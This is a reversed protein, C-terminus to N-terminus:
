YKITAWTKEGIRNAYMSSIKEAIFDLTFDRFFPNNHIIEIITLLCLITAEAHQSPCNEDNDVCGSFSFIIQRLIKFLGYELGVSSFPGPVSFDLFNIKEARYTVYQEHTRIVVKDLKYDVKKIISATFTINKRIETKKDTNYYSYIVSNEILMILVFCFDRWLRDLLDNDDLSLIAALNNSVFDNIPIETFKDRLLNIVKKLRLDTM